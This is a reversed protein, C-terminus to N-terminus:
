ERRKSYVQVRGRYSDSVVIRDREDDLIGLPRDFKGVAVLDEAEVRRWRKQTELSDDV